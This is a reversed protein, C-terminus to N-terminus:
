KSIPQTTKELWKKARESVHPAVTEYVHKHYNNLWQIESDTMMSIDLCATDIPVVTFIDFRMFQGYETSIDKCVVAANETRIGHSGETYVGPEITIVMGEKLPVNNRFSQPGEHINLLYGVGHGTGCRYDLGEKWLPGRALIDLEKGTTGEKFKATSMAIVSQLVLTFDHREQQTIEGLAVTRTTDTTGVMYQGGSDNLLLHSRELTKATDKKPGYHMMAANEKYALIANFSDEQYDPQQSRFERLKEAVEWETFTEGKELAEFLWGYFEAEACGDQLYAKYTNATEVENKCAKMLPIPDEKNVVTLASNNAAAQYLNYNLEKEDCIVTLKEQIGAVYQFVQQYPAVSVGNKELVAAAQAPMRSGETFLIAKDQSVFAYAIVVPNGVVDNARVNYLWAIDDLKSVILAQADEEKLKARVQALKEAASRGSYKEELYFVPTLTEAPRDEWIDNAYDVNTNIKISKKDFVKQMEKVASATFLTGNFGVTAGEPLNELLYDNVKPTGPEGAKFLVAESPALEAAAQVYYRGDTWLGSEKETIVFTGASGSFGSVFARTKWHNSVYESIHPDASPVICAAIHNQAMLSRIKAIKENVTM